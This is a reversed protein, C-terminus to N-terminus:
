TLDIGPRDLTFGSATDRLCKTVQWGAIRAHELCEREQTELSTAADREQADTSVRTYVVARTSKPRNDAQLVGNPSYETM